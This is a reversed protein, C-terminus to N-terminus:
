ISLIALRKWISNEISVTTKDMNKGDVYVDAKLNINSIKEPLAPYSILGNNVSLNLAIDPLTSDADSYVGKASGSLSFDGTAKLDHYDNIYIAPVLSLLTKFSTQDSKFTLDTTIDDEPM